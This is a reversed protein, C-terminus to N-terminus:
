PTPHGRRFLDADGSESISEPQIIASGASDGCVPLFIEFTTGEGLTSQVAIKGGHNEVIKQVISLGLGTGKTRTTFFPVLIQSLTDPSMGVGTDTLLVRVGNETAQSASGWFNTRCSSNDAQNAQDITRALSM